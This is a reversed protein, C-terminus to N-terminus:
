AIRIARMPTPPSTRRTGERAELWDWMLCETSEDVESEHIVCRAIMRGDRNVVKYGVYGEFSIDDAFVGREAGM